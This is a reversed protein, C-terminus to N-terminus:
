YNTVPAKDKLRAILKIDPKMLVMLSDGSLNECFYFPESSYYVFSCERVIIYSENSYTVIIPKM